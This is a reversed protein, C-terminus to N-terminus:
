QPPVPDEGGANWPHCKALRLLSLVSGKLIGFRHIATKAYGSCHPEFRCRNGLLPSICYQYASIVAILGKGMTRSIRAM